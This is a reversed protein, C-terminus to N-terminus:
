DDTQQARGFTRSHWESLRAARIADEEPTRAALRAEIDELNPQPPQEDASSTTDQESPSLPATLSAAAWSALADACRPCLLLVQTGGDATGIPRLEWGDAFGKTGTLAVPLSGIDEPNGKWESPLTSPCAPDANPIGTLGDCHLTLTVKM